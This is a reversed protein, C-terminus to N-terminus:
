FRDRHSYSCRDRCLNTIPLFVKRSYTVHHGKHRDRLRGAVELLAPLDDDSCRILAHADGISSSAGLDVVRELADAFAPLTPTSASRRDLDLPM